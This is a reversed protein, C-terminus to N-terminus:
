ADCKAEYDTKSNTTIHLQNSSEQETQLWISSTQNYKNTKLSIM